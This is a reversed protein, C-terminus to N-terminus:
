DFNPTDIGDVVLVDVAERAPELRLGLQEQIATFVSLPEVAPADPAAGPTPDIRWRLDVSFAGTLGTRDVVLRDRTAVLELTRVLESM